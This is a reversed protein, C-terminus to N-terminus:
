DCQAHLLPASKYSEPTRLGGGGPETGDSGIQTGQKGNRLPKKKKEGYKRYRELV